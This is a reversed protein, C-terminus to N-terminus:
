RSQSYPTVQPRILQAVTCSGYIGRVLDRHLSRLLYVFPIFLLSDIIMCELTQTARQHNGQLSLNGRAAERGYGLKLEFTM